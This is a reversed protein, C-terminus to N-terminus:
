PASDAHVAKLRTVWPPPPLSDTPEYQDLLEEGDVARLEYHTGMGGHVTEQYFAVHAGGAEFRWRWIPLAIGTFSHQIGQAYVKLSLPIPYSTCCNAFLTLWGVARRDPSIAVQDVGVQGSDPARILTRHGLTRIAIAGTSDVIVSDYTEYTPTQGALHAPCVVASLALPFLCAFPRV